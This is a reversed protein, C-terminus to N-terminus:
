CICPNLCTIQHPHRGHAQGLPGGFLGLGHGPQHGLPRWRAFKWHQELVLGHQGDVLRGPHGHM